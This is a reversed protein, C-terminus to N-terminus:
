FLKKENEILQENYWILLTDGTDRVAKWKFDDNNRKYGKTEIYYYTGDNNYVKFDLLYTHEKNDIGVYSIKDKTYEWNNINKLKKMEDLIKCARVEYTGQVKITGNSTKVTHWKTRGGCVYNNGNKYSEKHIDSWTKGNFKMYKLYKKQWKALCEKSCFKKHDKSTCYNVVINNCNDWKCISEVKSVFVQGKNWPINGQMKKSVKENIEKRKNKTSFGRACKISCFRGSGYSGDHENNCNECKM